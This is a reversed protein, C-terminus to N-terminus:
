LQPTKQYWRYHLSLFTPKIEDDRVTSRIQHPVPDRMRSWCHRLGSSSPRVRQNCCEFLTRGGREQGRHLDEDLCQGALSDSQFDLRGICNVLCCHSLLTLALIWPCLITLSKRYDQTDFTLQREM